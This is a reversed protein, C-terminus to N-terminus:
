SLLAAPGGGQDPGQSQSPGVATKWSSAFPDGVAFLPFAWEHPGRLSRMVVLTGASPYYSIPYKAALYNPRSSDRSNTVLAEFPLHLLADDPVLVLSTGEPIDQLAKKLLLDYLRRAPGPDFPALPNRTISDLLSTVQTRLEREGVSITILRVSRDKRVVWLYTVGSTVKYELLVERHNLRHQVERVVIPKPYKLIAYSRVESDAHRRLSEVFTNLSQHAGLLETRLGEKRLVALNLAQQLEYVRQLLRQEEERQPSPLELDQSKVRALQELLVRAKGREVFEFSEYADGGELASVFLFAFIAFDYVDRSQLLSVFTIRGRETGIGSRVSELQNGYVLLTQGAERLLPGVDKKTPTDAAELAMLILALAKYMQIAPSINSYGLSASSLEGAGKPDIWLALSRDFEAVATPFDKEFFAVLGLGYHADSKSSFLKSSSLASDFQERASAYRGEMTLFVGLGLLIKQRLDADKAIGLADEYMAKVEQMEPEAIWARLFSTFIAHFM